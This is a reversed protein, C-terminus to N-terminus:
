DNWEPADTGEEPDEHVDRFLGAPPQKTPWPEPTVHRGKEIDCRYFPSTERSTLVRMHYDLHDRTWVSVGTGPELRLAEFADWTAELRLVAEPHEWWQDCWCGALLEKRWVQVLFESVFEPLSAFRTEHGPPPTPSLDQDDVGGDVDVDSIPLSESM